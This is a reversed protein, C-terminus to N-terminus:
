TKADPPNLFITWDVDPDKFETGPDVGVVILWNQGPKMRYAPLLRKEDDFDDDYVFPVDDGFLERARHARAHFSNRSPAFDHSDLMSESNITLPLYKRTVLNYLFVKTSKTMLDRIYGRIHKSRFWNIPRLWALSAQWFLVYAEELTLTKLYGKVYCRTPINKHQGPIQM